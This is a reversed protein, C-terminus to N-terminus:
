HGYLISQCSNKNQQNNNCKLTIIFYDFGLLGQPIYNGTKEGIKTTLFDQQRNSLHFVKIFQKM